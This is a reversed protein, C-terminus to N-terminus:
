RWTSILGCIAVAVGGALSFCIVCFHILLLTETMDGFQSIFSINKVQLDFNARKNTM